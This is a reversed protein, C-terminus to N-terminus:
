NGGNGRGIREVVLGINGLNLFPQAVRINRRRPNVIM